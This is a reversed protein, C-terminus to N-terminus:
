ALAPLIAAVLAFGFLIGAIRVLWGRIAIQRSYYRRLDELDDVNVATPAPVVAWVALALSIAVLVVSPVALAPHEAVVDSGLAGFGGLVSGFVTVSAILLKASAEIRSLSKEPGLDLAASQLLEDTVTKRRSQVVDPV